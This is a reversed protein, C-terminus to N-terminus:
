DYDESSNSFIVSSERINHDKDLNWIYYPLHLSKTKPIFLYPTKLKRTRRPLAIGLKSDDHNFRENFESTPFIVYKPVYSVDKYFKNPFRGKISKEYYRNPCIFWLRRFRPGLSGFINGNNNISCKGCYIYKENDFEEMLRRIDMNTM